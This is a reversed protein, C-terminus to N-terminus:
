CKKEKGKGLYWYCDIQPHRFVRYRKSPSPIVEVWGKKILREAKVEQIKM